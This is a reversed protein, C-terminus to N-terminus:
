PVTQSLSCSTQQSSVREAAKAYAHRWSQLLRSASVSMLAALMSGGHFHRRITTGAVHATRVHLARLATTTNNSRRTAEVQGAKPHWMRAVDPGMSHRISSSIVKAYQTHNYSAVHMCLPFCPTSCPKDRLWRGTPSSHVQQCHQTSRSSGLRELNGPPPVRSGKPRRVFM